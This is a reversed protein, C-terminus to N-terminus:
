GVGDPIIASVERINPMGYRHNDNLEHLALAASLHTHEQTPKVAIIEHDQQFDYENLLRLLSEPPALKHPM